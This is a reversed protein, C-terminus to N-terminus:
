GRLERAARGAARSRVTGTPSSTARTPARATLGRRRWCTSARRVGTSRTGPARTPRRVGVADLHLLVVGPPLARGIIAAATPAPFNQLYPLNTSFGHNGEAAFFPRSGVAPLYQPRFVNGQTLDGYETENGSNYVNDGVTVVFSAPSAGIRSMVNAQDTTGEGWDGFVAFSFATGSAAATKVQPSPDTGLLDTSGLQVRYCYTGPGPFASCPPGSTSAADLGGHDVRQTATVTNSPTCQGGSVVGWRATGTSQSRDTAWSVTASNGVVENTYPARRLAAVSGLASVSQWGIAITALVGLM